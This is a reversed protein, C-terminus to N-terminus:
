TEAEIFTYALSGFFFVVTLVVTWLLYSHIYLYTIAAGLFPVAVLLVLFLVRVLGYWQQFRLFFITLFLVEAMRLVPLLFLHYPEFRGYNTFIEVIALLTYFGGGFSLLSRYGKQSYALFYLVGLFVVPILHDTFLFRLYLPFSRYSLPVYRRVLLIVVLCLVAYFFGKIFELAPLTRVPAEHRLSASGGSLVRRDAFLIFVTLCPMGLIAFLSM